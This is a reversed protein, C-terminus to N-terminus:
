IYSRIEKATEDSMQLAESILIEPWYWDINLSMQSKGVHGPGVVEHIEGVIFLV